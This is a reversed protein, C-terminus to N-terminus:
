HGAGEAGHEEGEAAHGETASSGETAHDDGSHHMLAAVGPDVKQIRVWNSGEHNMVDPALGAFLLVMFVLATALFWHVVPKEVSLHMFEKAVMYAKVIAIGFATILTVIQIELEPGAISICLLVLLILWIKVYHKTHDHHGHDDQDAVAAKATDSM